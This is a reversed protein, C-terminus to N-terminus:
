RPEVPRPTPVAAGRGGSRPTQAHLCGSGAAACAPGDVKALSASPALVPRLASEAYHTANSTARNVSAQLHPLPYATNYPSVLFAGGAVLVAVIAVGALLVGRRRRAPKPASSPLRGGADLDASSAPVDHAEGPLRAASIGAPDPELDPYSSIHTDM